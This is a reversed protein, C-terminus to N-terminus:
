VIGAEKTVREFGRVSFRNFRLSAKMKGFIPEVNIKRQAYIRGTEPASLLERQKAKFYAWNENVSIRKLNGKPPLAGPILQHNEDYKEAVYEKFDRTFSYKDARQRYANFNFRVGQPNIFYDNKEHYDWNMVKRNDSRWKQSNEKLMTGYPILATHQELEDELYRYNSESGYGADAVITTGLTNNTKLHEIFTPLTRTDTPNHFLQYGTIFQNSMAIQFNYAPKLQGNQMPDEKVRMFTGDHDTKSYSNRQGYIAQQVQHECM